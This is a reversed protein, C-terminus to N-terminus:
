ALSVSENSNIINKIDENTEIYNALKTKDDKGTKGMNDILWKTDILIGLVREHVKETKGKLYSFGIYGYHEDHTELGYKNEKFDYPILFANYTKKTHQNIYEGYRVQKNIDSAGPVNNPNVMFAYYKADLVFIKDKLEIKDDPFIMITDPLLKTEKEQKLKPVFKWIAPPYFKMKENQSIGYASDILKEWVTYFHTTGFFFTNKEEGRKQDLMAIMANFLIKNKDNFTNKLTDRIVSIFYGKNDDTIKLTPKHPNFKTFIWGFKTFAEHVCWEHILSILNDTRKENKRIIFETYVPANNQVFPTVSSITRKWNIKGMPAKKYRIESEIYYGYQMFAKIITIYADFPFYQMYNNHGGLLEDGANKSHRNIAILLSFIEKKLETKYEKDSYHYGHPFNAYVTAKGDKMELKIGVFDDLNGGTHNRPEIIVEPM